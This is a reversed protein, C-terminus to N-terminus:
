PFCWIDPGAIAGPVPTPCQEADSPREVPLNPIFIYNGNPPPKPLTPMPTPTETPEPTPEPTATPETTATATPTPTNTMTPTPTKSPRPPCEQTDEIQGFDEVQAVVRAPRFGLKQHTATSRLKQDIVQGECGYAQYRILVYDFGELNGVYVFGDDQLAVYPQFERIEEPKANAATWGVFILLIVPVLIGLAIRLKRSKIM